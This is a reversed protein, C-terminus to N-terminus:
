AVCVFSARGLLDAPMLSLFIAQDSQVRMLIRALADGAFIACVIEIAATQAMSAPRSV